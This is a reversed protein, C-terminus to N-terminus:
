GWFFYLLVVGLLLRYIVFPLMGMRQIWMLFYHICIYASLGSIVSGLGLSVWDVPQDAAILDGTVFISSLLIVPISLLFSFRAAVERELARQAELRDLEDVAQYARCNTRPAMSLAERTFRDVVTLIRFPREDFLRDSMFDMAWVDNM